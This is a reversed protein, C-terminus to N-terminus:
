IEIFDCSVSGVRANQGYWVRYPATLDGTYFKKTLMGGAMIDPYTVSLEVGSNKCYRCIRMAESWPCDPWKVILKRKQAVVSIHMTGDATRGSDASAISNLSWKCEAPTKILVGNIYIFGKSVM